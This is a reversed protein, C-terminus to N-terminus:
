GCPSGFHQLANLNRERRRLIQARAFGRVPSSRGWKAWPLTALGMRPDNWGVLFFYPDHKGAGLRRLM